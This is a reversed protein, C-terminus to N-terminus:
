RHLYGFSYFTWDWGPSCGMRIAPLHHCWIHQDYCLHLCWGVHWFPSATIHFVTIEVM